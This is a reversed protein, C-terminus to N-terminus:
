VFITDHRKAGTSVLAIKVKLDDAIYELYERAKDPLSGFDTQGTTDENWGPLAEYIPAVHALDSLDLPVNSTKRGNLEYRTCVNITDFDDLVDLKTVAISDVGNIRVAYRLAVLDLWGCRRPRGTTSGYEDGNVRLKEGTEDFLETPFPGSGVRTSYAKVVGVVEDIMKYSIGLGTLAGGTTTNSSTAYPYTGLDVDLM